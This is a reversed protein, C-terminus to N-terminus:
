FFNSATEVMRPPPAKPNRMGIYTELISCPNFKYAGNTLLLDPIVGGSQASELDAYHNKSSGRSAQPLPDLVSM